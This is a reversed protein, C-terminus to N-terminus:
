QVLVRRPQSQLLKAHSIGVLPLHRVSFISPTLPRTLGEVKEELLNTTPCTEATNTGLSSWTEEM